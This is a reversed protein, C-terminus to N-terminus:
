RPAPGRLRLYNDAKVQERSKEKESDIDADMIAASVGTFCPKVNIHTKLGFIFVSPAM